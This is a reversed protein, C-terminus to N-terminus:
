AAAPNSVRQERAWQTDRLFRLQSRRWIPILVLHIAIASGALIYLWKPVPGHFTLGVTLLAVPIATTLACWIGYAAGRAVTRAREEATMHTCIERVESSQFPSWTQLSM